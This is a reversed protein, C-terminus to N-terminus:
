EKRERAMYILFEFLSKSTNDRDWSCEPHWQVGLILKEPNTSEIAEILGDETWAVKKLGLGVDKVSQHHFSNVKVKTKGIINFLLSNNEIQIEHYPVWKPAKQDHELRTVEGIDQYINGGASINLVQMGRCIGLVPKKGNLAKKALYLEFRDRLPTIEKIGKLPSQGFYGPDVDGGGSFILGDVQEYLSEVLSIGVSPLIVPIGGLTEIAQVYYDTLYHKENSNSFGATIGIVPQIM